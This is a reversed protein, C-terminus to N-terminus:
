IKEDIIENLRSIEYQYRGTDWDGKEQLQLELSRIFLEKTMLLDQYALVNAELEKVQKKFMKDFQEKILQRERELVTSRAKDSAEIVFRDLYYITNTINVREPECDIQKVIPEAYEQIKM